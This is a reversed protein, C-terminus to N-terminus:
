CNKKSERPNRRVGGPARGPPRAPGRRRYVWATELRGGVRRLVFVPEFDAMVRVMPPTDPPRDGYGLLNNVHLLLYDADDLSPPPPLTDSHESVGRGVFTFRGDDPLIRRIISDEWLWSVVRSGPRVHELCWRILSEVGHSNTQLLNRYGKSEQGLWTEGVQTYGYLEYDPYARVSEVGLWALPGGVLLLAAVTGRIQRAKKFPTSGSGSKASPSSGNGAARRVLDIAIAAATLVILPYVGMLYFSQRLPLFCLAVLYFVTALVPLRWRPDWQERFGGYLLGGAALLGVAPTAKLLIIGAYLRLHDDWLALPIRQDWRLARRVLEAAIGHQTLHEPMLVVCTLLAVVLVGLLSGAAGPRGAPLPITSRGGRRAAACLGALCVATALWAPIALAPRAWVAFFAGLVVVVSVALWATLAPSRLSANKQKFFYVASVPVLVLAHAKAGVALGLCIGVALWRGATPQEAWRALALCALPVCLAVFVDGETMAIRGYALFYPSAALLLATLSSTPGDFLRRALAATVLIAAAGVLISVGRAVALEGPPSNGLNLLATAGAVVYMPLRMQSADLPADEGRIPRARLAAAIDLDVREDWLMDLHKASSWAAVMFYGIALAVTARGLIFSASSRGAVNRAAMDDSAVM